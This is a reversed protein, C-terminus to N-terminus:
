LLNSPRHVYGLLAVASTHFLWLGSQDGKLKQPVAGTGENEKKKNKKERLKTHLILYIFLMALVCFGEIGVFVYVSIRSGDQNGSPHYEESATEHSIGLALCYTESNFVCPDEGGGGGGGGHGSSGSNSTSTPAIELLRLSCLISSTIELGPKL